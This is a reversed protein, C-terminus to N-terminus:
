HQVSSRIGWGGSSLFQTMSFSQSELFSQPCSAFRTASSLTTPHCWQSLPRLNSFVRPSLSFCPLRDLQLERHRCVFFWILSLLQVVFCVTCVITLSCTRKTAELYQTPKWFTQKCKEMVDELFVQIFKKALRYNVSKIWNPQSPPVTVYFEYFHSIFIITVTAQSTFLTFKNWVFLIKWFWM